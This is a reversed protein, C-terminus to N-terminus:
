SRGPELGDLWAHVAARGASAVLADIRRFIEMWVACFETRGYASGTHHIAENMCGGQCADFYPCSECKPDIRWRRADLSEWADRDFWGELANGFKGQGSDAMEFCTYLSGDPDLNLSVRACNRMFPCVDGVVSEPRVRKSTLHMFPEVPVPFKMAWKDFAEGMVRALDEVSPDEVDRGGSFVPRLVLSYGADAAADMEHEVNELGQRDVVFVAGPNRRRRRMLAERSRAVAKRYADASGKLTRQTGRGDVSTGVNGGFLLDLELIRRESAILNTQVGDRITGFVEGLEDRAIEVCERLESLPVLLIEGGVYQVSVTARPGGCGLVPFVERKLFRLSARYDDPSMRSRGSPDAQWSSCYSCDANCGKILRAHITLHSAM